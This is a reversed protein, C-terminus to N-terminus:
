PTRKIKVLHEMVKSAIEVKGLKLLIDQLAAFTAATPNNKQWFSLCMNMGVQIGGARRM